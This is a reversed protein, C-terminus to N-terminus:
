FKHPKQGTLIACKQLLQMEVEERVIM